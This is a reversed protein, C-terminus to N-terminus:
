SAVQRAPNGFSVDLRYSVGFGVVFAPQAVRSAKAGDNAAPQSGVKTVATM